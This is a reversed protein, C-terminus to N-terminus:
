AELHIVRAVFRAHDSHYEWRVVLSGEKAREVFCGSTRDVEKREAAGHRLLSGVSFAEVFLQMAVVIQRSKDFSRSPLLQFQGTRRVCVVFQM